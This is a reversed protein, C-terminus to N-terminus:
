KKGVVAVLLQKDLRHLGDNRLFFLVLLMPLPVLHGNLIGGQSASLLSTVTPSLQCAYKDSCHTYLPVFVPGIKM